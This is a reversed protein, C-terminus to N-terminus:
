TLLFLLQLDQYLEVEFPVKNWILPIKVCIQLVKPGTGRQDLESRVKRHHRRRRIREHRHRAAHLGRLLQIPQRRLAGGSAVVAVAM